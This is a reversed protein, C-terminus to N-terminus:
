QERKMQTMNKEMTIFWDECHDPNGDYIPLKIDIKIKDILSVASAMTKEEGRGEMDVTTKTNALQTKTNEFWEKGATAKTRKPTTGHQLYELITDRLIEDDIQKIQAIFARTMVTTPCLNGLLDPQLLKDWIQPVITGTAMIEEYQIELIKIAQQLKELSSMKSQQQDM